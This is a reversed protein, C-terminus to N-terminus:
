NPKIDKFQMIWILRKKSLKQIKFIGRMFEKCSKKILENDIHM